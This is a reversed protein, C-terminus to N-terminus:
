MQPPRGYPSSQTGLLRLSNHPMITIGSILHHLEFPFVTYTLIFNCTRIRDDDRTKSFRNLNFKFDQVYFFVYTWDRSHKIKLFM